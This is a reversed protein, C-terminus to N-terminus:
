TPLPTTSCPTPILRQCTAITHSEDAAIHQKVCPGGATPGVCSGEGPTAPSPEQMVPRRHETLDTVRATRTARLPQGRRRIRGAARACKRVRGTGALTRGHRCASQDDLDGRALVLGLAAPLGQVDGGGRGGAP